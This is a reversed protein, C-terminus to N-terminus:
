CRRAVCFDTVEVLARLWQTEPFTALTERAMTAYHRASNITDELAGHREMLALAESFDQPIHAQFHKEWFDRQAATGRRYALLVPLTIKGERFDNGIEKGLTARDGSYDLVDDRLQFAIGLHRGFTGLVEGDEENVLAAGAQAAASFLAATKATIMRLYAERTLNLNGEAQKDMVQGEALTAAARSLVRLVPVSGPAVMLEFARGLLFDGVLVSFSNGWLLHGAPRGRRTPSTDVVDDHLLTASHILEVAAALTMHHSGKYGCLRAACLTLMPRIRKGGGGLLHLSMEPIPVSQGQLHDQLLTDVQAMEEEVLGVLALAPSSEPIVAGM